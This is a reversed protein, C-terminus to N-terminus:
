DRYLIRYGMYNSWYNDFRLQIGSFWQTFNSEAGLEDSFMIPHPDIEYTPVFISLNDDSYTAGPM